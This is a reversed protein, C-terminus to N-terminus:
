GCPSGHGVRFRAVMRMSDPPASSSLAAFSPLELDQGGVVAALRGACHEEEPVLVAGAGHAVRAAARLLGGDVVVARGRLAFRPAHLPVGARRSPPLQPPGNYSVFPRTLPGPQQTSAKTPVPWAAQSPRKSRKQVLLAGVRHSSGNPDFGAVMSVTPIGKRGAHKGGVVAACRLVRDSRARDRAPRARGRAHLAAEGGHGAVQRRAGRVDDDVSRRRAQGDEAVAEAADALRDRAQGDRVGADEAVRGHRHVQDARLDVQALDPAELVPM